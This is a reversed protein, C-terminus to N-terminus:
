LLSGQKILTTVHSTIKLKEEHLDFELGKGAISFFPGVIRVQNDTKLCGERQKYIINETNIMYGSHTRGVLNGRLNIENSNKNYDGSDGKLEISDNNELELKLRFKHFFIIQRDKSFKVEEADLVWKVREDPDNQIYHINKLGFGGEPGTDQTVIDELVKYDAKFLFFGIIAFLFIIGILPLYKLPARVM